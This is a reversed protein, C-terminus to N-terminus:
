RLEPQPQLAKRLDTLLRDLDGSLIRELHHWSKKARHDTLRDQALNYTRIKEAREATGIQRRREDGVRAAAERQQNEFLRARLVEMAIEKNQIQTRAEQSTVTLGTALHIIRVASERRNVYQGGPGSARYVDIRLDEPRIELEQPKPKPLVAVTATSTHIRGSKETAPIRQIRHVGSEFRLAEAAGPGKVIAIGERLGGLETPTMSGIEFKWGKREGYRRYMRFLETAFLAAEEGGTGPRIELIVEDM